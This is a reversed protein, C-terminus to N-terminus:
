GLLSFSRIHFKLTHTYTHTSVFHVSFWTVEESQENIFLDTSAKTKKRIRSRDILKHARLLQLLLKSTVVAM